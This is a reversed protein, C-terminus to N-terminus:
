RRLDTPLLSWRHIRVEPFKIDQKMQIHKFSLGLSATAVRHSHRGQEESRPFDLLMSTMSDVGTGHYMASICHVSPKQRTFEPQTSYLSQFVWTLSYYRCRSPLRWCIQSEGHHSWRQQLAQQVKPQSGPVRQVPGIRNSVILERVYSSVPFHRTWMGEMLLLNRERARAVLAKAQLANVTFAKEYLVHKGGELCQMANQSRHSHPTATDVIDVNSDNIVGAHSGYARADPSAGCAQLFSEAKTESSFSAAAV